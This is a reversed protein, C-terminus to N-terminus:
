TETSRKSRFGDRWEFLINESELHKMINSSIVHEMIKCCTCTLPVPRYNSPKYKEGKKFIPVVNATQWDRPVTSTELSKNFIDALPEALINAFDHLIKPVIENPGPAKHIKLNQLQKSIGPVTIKIKNMLPFPSPGMDPLCELTAPSFVSKFLENLAEAKECTDSILKGNVKLPAGGPSSADRILSKVLGWWKTNGKDLNPDIINEM